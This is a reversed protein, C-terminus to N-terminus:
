LKRARLLGILIAHSESPVRDGSEWHYWTRGSVGIREAADEVSLGRAERVARIEDPTPIALQKKRRAMGLM